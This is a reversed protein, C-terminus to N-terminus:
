RPRLLHRISNSDSNPARPIDNTQNAKAIADRSPYMAGTRKIISSLPREKFPDKPEKRQFKLYPDFHKKVQNSLNRVFNDRRYVTHNMVAKM